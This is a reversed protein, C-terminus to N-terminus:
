QPDNSGTLGPVLMTAVSGWVTVTFYFGQWALEEHWDEWRFTVVRRTCLERFGDALSLYTRGSAEDARFRQVYMPVDVTCMFTVFGTGLVLAPVLFPRLSRPGRRLVLAGAVSALFFTTTWLSEELANGAYNTTLVAYWSSTEAVALLPVMVWSVVEAFRTGTGRALENLLLAFQAGFCLEALTAVSRGVFVTSLWSDVLCIKQVDARPLIGRFGCVLVFVLSLLRLRRRAALVSADLHESRRALEASALAWLSLNLPAAAWLGAWWVLVAASADATPRNLLLITSSAAFVVGFAALRKGVTAIPQRSAAV